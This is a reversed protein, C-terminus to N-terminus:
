KKKRLEILPLTVEEQEDLSFVRANEGNVARVEVTGWEDHDARDGAQLPRNKEAEKLEAKKQAQQILVVAPDQFRGFGIATKAGAGIWELAQTLYGFATELDDATGGARLGLAFQFETNPAAALFPIPNPSIWDAPPHRAPATENRWGGTHPTIVEAMLEVPGLPLADFVIVLGAGHGDTDKDDRGFLRAITRDEDGGEWQKAWARMLGKISSGPLYPVGLTHHFLFGNEIGHALGMGTVFPSTSVFAEVRGNCATALKSLRLACGTEPISGCFKEVWKQKDGPAIKGTFDSPWYSFFKQYFLGRNGRGELSDRTRGSPLPLTM